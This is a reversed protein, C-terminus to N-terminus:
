YTEVRVPTLEFDRANRTLIAADLSDACAAILADALGLTWGRRRADARWRGAAQSHIPAPQVFEIVELLAELDPDTTGRAGAWAECVVIENVFVEDGAEFIAAFRRIAAPDDRLHDIVFTTDLVYRM